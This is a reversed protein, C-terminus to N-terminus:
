QDPRAAPPINHSGHFVNDPDWQRKLERLREFRDGYLRAVGDLDLPVAVTNPAARDVAPGIRCIDEFVAETWEVHADDESPEDWWVIPVTMWTPEEGTERLASPSEPARGFAGLRPNIEINRRGSGAPERIRAVFADLLEDSLATVPQEHSVTRAPPYYETLLFHLDRFPAAIVDEADPAGFSRLRELDARAEEEPGSHCM